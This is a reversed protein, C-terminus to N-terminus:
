WNFSYALAKPQDLLNLVLVRYQVLPVCCLTEGGGPLAAGAPGARKATARRGRGRLRGQWAGDSWWRQLVGADWRRCSACFCRSMQLACKSNLASCPCMRAAQRDLFESV